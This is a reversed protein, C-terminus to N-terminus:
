RYFIQRHGRRNQQYHHLAKQQAENLSTINQPATIEEKKNEKNKCSFITLILIIAISSNNYIM